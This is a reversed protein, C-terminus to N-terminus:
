DMFLKRLIHDTILWQDPDIAVKGDTKIMSGSRLFAQAQQEFHLRYELGFVLELHVPDAGWKTRLSTILYDHYKETGTLHETEDKKGGSFVREMYEKLSSTNWSRREGDYSHASPGLGLYPRGSWYLMNHKSFYGSRGFSSLEYHEFEASLLSERLIRYQIVSEEEPVPILKGNKRWHDFVTGPEFSLHYASLHNVPLSLARSINDEWGATSLGPVGYILDMTLNKFGCGAARKVAEEAQGAHHSRRMIELDKQHFSQIGISLRNFGMQYLRNLTIQDLDDPNCEMTWEPDKVFTFYRGITDVIKELQVPSLLSPTGGGLYLTELTRGPNAEGKQQIEQVLAEVFRDLYQLSVTFFFDCYRCAKRCFPIHIYIGQM